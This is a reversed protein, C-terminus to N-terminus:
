QFRVKCEKIIREARKQWTYNAEFDYKANKGLRDMLKHDEKLNQLANLWDKVNSPDVLISNHGNKLVETIVKFNSCIIPKGISMYEFIKLPSMWLYSSSNKKNRITLNKQYPALLIDCQNLLSSVRSHAVFPIHLINKHEYNFGDREGGIIIFITNSFKEAMRKIIGLGRGKYLSGAYAVRMRSNKRPINDGKFKEAADHCVLLKNKPLNPCSTSSM